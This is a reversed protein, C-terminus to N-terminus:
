PSALLNAKGKSSSQLGDIRMVGGSGGGGGIEVGHLRSKSGRGYDEVDVGGTVSCTGRKTGIRREKQWEKQSMHM